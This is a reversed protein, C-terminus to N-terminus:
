NSVVPPYDIETLVQAIQDWNAPTDWQVVVAKTQEDAKVSKVGQIEGVEREVTHVCHDCSMKPISFTKTEM